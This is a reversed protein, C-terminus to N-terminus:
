KRNKHRWAVMALACQEAEILQAEDTNGLLRRIECWLRVLLPAVPDRALLVFMPEDPEAKTYCDYAGPKNKTAM